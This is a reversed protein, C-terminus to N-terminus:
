FCIIFNDRLYYLVTPSSFCVKKTFYGFFKGKKPSSWLFSFISPMLGIGEM